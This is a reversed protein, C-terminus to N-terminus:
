PVYQRVEDPRLNLAAIEQASLRRRVAITSLKPAGLHQFVADLAEHETHNGVAFYIDGPGSATPITAKVVVGQQALIQTM